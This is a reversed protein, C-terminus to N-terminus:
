IWRSFITESAYWACLFCVSIIIHVYLLELTTNLLVNLVSQVPKFAVTPCRAVLRKLLPPLWSLTYKMYLSTVLDSTFFLVIRIHWPLLHFSIVEPLHVFFKDWSWQPFGAYEYSIAMKDSSMIVEIAIKIMGTPSCHCNNRSYLKSLSSLVLLLARVQCPLFFQQLRSSSILHSGHRSFM